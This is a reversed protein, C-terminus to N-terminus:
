PGMVYQQLLTEAEGEQALVASLGPPLLMPIPRRALV